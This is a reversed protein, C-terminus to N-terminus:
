LGTRRLGAASAKRLRKTGGLAGNPRRGRGAEGRLANGSLDLYQMKAAGQGLDWPVAGTLQNGSLDLATLQPFFFALPGIPGSLGAKPGSLMSLNWNNAKV